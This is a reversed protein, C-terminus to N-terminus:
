DEPVSNLIMTFPTLWNQPIQQTWCKKVAEQTKQDYADNLWAEAKAKATKIIETNEM